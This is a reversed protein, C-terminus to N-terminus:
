KAGGFTRKQPTSRLPQSRAQILSATNSGQPKFCSRKPQYVPLVWRALRDRSASGSCFRYDLRKHQEGFWHVAWLRRDVPSSVYAFNSQGDLHNSAKEGLTMLSHINALTCAGGNPQGDLAELISKDGATYLLTWAAIQTESVHEETVGLFHKSFNWGIASLMRDGIKRGVKFVEAVVFTEKGPLSLLARQELLANEAQEVQALPSFIKMYIHLGLCFKGM